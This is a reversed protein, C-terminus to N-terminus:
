NVMYVVIYYMAINLVEHVLQARHILSVNQNTMAHPVICLTCFLM